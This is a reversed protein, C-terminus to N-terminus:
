PLLTQQQVPNLSIAPPHQQLLAISQLWGLCFPITPGSSACPHLKRCQMLLSEQQFPLMHLLSAVRKPAHGALRMQFLQQTWIFAAQPPGAPMKEGVPGSTALSTRQCSSRQAVRAQSSFPVM